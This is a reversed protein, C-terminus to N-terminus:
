QARLRFFRSSGVIQNTITFLEGIDNPANTVVTWSSIGELQASTELVCNTFEKPWALVVNTGSVSMQLTPNPMIATVSVSNLQGSVSFLDIGNYFGMSWTALDLQDLSPLTTPLTRDFAEDRLLVTLMTGSGTNTFQPSDFEFGYFGVESSSVHTQITAPHSCNTKTTFQYDGLSVSVRNAPTLAWYNGNPYSPGDRDIVTSLDIQFTVRFPSGIYISSVVSPTASAVAGINGAFRYELMEAKLLAASQLSWLLVAIHLLGKHQSFKM